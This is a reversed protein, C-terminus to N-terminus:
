LGELHPYHSIRSNTLAMADNNRSACSTCLGGVGFTQPTYLWEQEQRTSYLKHCTHSHLRCLNRGANEDVILRRWQLDEYQRCVVYGTVYACSDNCSCSPRAYVWHLAENQRAMGARTTSKPVSSAPRQQDTKLIPDKHAWTSHGDLCKNIAFDAASSDSDYIFIPDVALRTRREVVSCRPGCKNSQM